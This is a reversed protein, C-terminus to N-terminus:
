VEGNVGRANPVTLAHKDTNPSFIPQNTPGGKLDQPSVPNQWPSTSDPLSLSGIETQVM